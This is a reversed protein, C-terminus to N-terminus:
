SFIFDEVDPNKGSGCEPNSTLHDKDIDVSGEEELFSVGQIMDDFESNTSFDVACSYHTITLLVFGPLLFKYSM